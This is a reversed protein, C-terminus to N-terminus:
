YFSLCEIGAGAHVIRLVEAEELDVVSITGDGQGAILVTKGDSHFAMDMPGKGIQINRQTTLDANLITALPEEHSTVVLVRGDPSYRAIQAAKKHHELGITKTLEDTKPDIVYLNAEKGDVVVITKGDPSMGLGDLEGPM